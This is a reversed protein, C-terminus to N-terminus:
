FGRYTFLQRTGSEFIRVLNEKPRYVVSWRNAEAKTVPLDIIGILNTAGQRPNTKYDDLMSKLEKETLGKITSLDGLIHRRHNNKDGKPYILFNQRQTELVSEEWYKPQGKHFGAIDSFRMMGYPGQMIIVDLDDSRQLSLISGAAASWLSEHILSVMGTRKNKMLAGSCQVFNESLITEGKSVQTVHESGRLFAWAEAKSAFPATYIGHDISYNFNKIVEKPQWMPKDKPGDGPPRIEM